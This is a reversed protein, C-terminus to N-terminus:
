NQSMKVTLNPRHIRYGMNIRSQRFGPNVDYKLLQFDVQLLSNLQLVLHMFIISCYRGLASSFSIQVQIRYKGLNDTVSSFDGVPSSCKIRFAVHTLTMM